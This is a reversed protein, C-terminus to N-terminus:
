IKYYQEIHNEQKLIKNNNYSKIQNYSMLSLHLLSM